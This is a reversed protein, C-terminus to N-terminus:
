NYLHPPPPSDIKIKKPVRGRLFNDFGKTIDVLTLIKKESVPIFVSRFSHAIKCQLFLTEVDGGFNPFSDHHEIFFKVLDDNNVNTSWEELYVKIKFIEMLEYPSYSEILYRFTFRRRLGENMAFFCKEVQDEYGAIICLWDRKESLNQTLTDICEKSYIDVKDTNGNGLAYVEDIFLVGGAANNIATQTKIATQGLFQGVLDPRTVLKFHGKSLIGMEKYIKGLIKGFHTKGTGPSGLIVTHLMEETNKVCKLGHSCELCNGCKTKKNLGQLFYLIQFVIGEKASKMGILNKLEVLPAILNCMYRLNMGFFETNKKCHYTRGLAILDDINNIKDLNCKPVETPDEEFTKHDCFPNNCPIKPADNKSANISNPLKKQLANLFEILAKDLEELQKKEKNIRENNKESSSSSSESSSRSKKSESSSSSSEEKNKKNPHDDEDNLEDNNRKTGM